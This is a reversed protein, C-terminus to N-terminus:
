QTESVQSGQGHNQASIIVILNGCANMLHWIAQVVSRMSSPAQFFKFDAILM